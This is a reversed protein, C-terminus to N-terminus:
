CGATQKESIWQTRCMRRNQLRKKYRVYCIRELFLIATGSPTQGAPIASGITDSLPFIKWYHM